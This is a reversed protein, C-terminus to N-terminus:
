SPLQRTADNPEAMRDRLTVTWTIALTEQIFHTDTQGQQSGDLLFLKAIGLAKPDKAMM